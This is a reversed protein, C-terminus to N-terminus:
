TRSSCYTIVISQDTITDLLGWLPTSNTRSVSSERLSHKRFITQHDAHIPQPLLLENALVNGLWWANTWWPGHTRMWGISWQGMTGGTRGDTRGVTWGGTRAVGLM